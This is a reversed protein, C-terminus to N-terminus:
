PIFDEHEGSFDGRLEGSFDRETDEGVGRGSYEASESDDDDPAGPHTMRVDFLMAMLPWMGSLWEGEEDLIKVLPHDRSSKDDEEGPHSIKPPKLDEPLQRLNAVLDDLRSIHIHEHSFNDRIVVGAEELMDALEHPGPLSPESEAIDVPGFVVNGLDTDLMEGGQNERKILIQHMSNGLPAILFGGDELCNLLWEPPQRLSGTILVRSLQAPIGTPAIALDDLKMVQVNSYSHLRELAYEVVEASPDLIIVEGEPGVLEAIIAGMYGGKSGLLLVTQGTELELNLLLSAIMHPASITKVGGSPTELFVLPRDHFFPTPDLDSFHRVDVEMMAAELREDIDVSANRLREILALMPDM